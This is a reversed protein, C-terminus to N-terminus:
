IPTESISVKSILKKVKRCFTIKEMIVKWHSLNEKIAIYYISVLNDELIQISSYSFANFEGKFDNYEAQNRRKM